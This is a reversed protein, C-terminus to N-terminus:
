VLVRNPCASNLYVKSKYVSGIDIKAPKVSQLKGKLQASDKVTVNRIYTGNLLCFSIERLVIPGCEELKKVLLDAPYLRDYYLAIQESNM